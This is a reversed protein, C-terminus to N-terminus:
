LYLYYKLSSTVCRGYRDAMMGCAPALELDPLSVAMGGIEVKVTGTTATTGVGGDMRPLKNDKTFQVFDEMVEAPLRTLCINWFVAFLCSTRYNSSAIFEPTLKRSTINRVWDFQPASRAGASYGTQM